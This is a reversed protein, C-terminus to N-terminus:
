EQLSALREEFRGMAERYLLVAWSVRAVGLAALEALSPTQPSRLVNVLGGVESTFRRLPDAEWLGIPYV